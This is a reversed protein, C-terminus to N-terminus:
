LGLRALLLTQNNDRAGTFFIGGPAPAVGVVYDALSVPVVLQAKVEGNRSMRAALIGRGPEVLGNGVLLVDLLVGCGRAM